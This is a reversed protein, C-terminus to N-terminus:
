GVHGTPVAVAQGDLVLHVDFEAFLLVVDRRGFLARGAADEGSFEDVDLPALEFSQQHQALPLVRVDGHVEVVLGVDGALESLEHGLARDIARVLGDPPAWVVLGREGLSFQFVGLVDRGADVHPERQLGTLAGVGRGLGLQFFDGGLVARDEHDDPRGRGPGDGAVEGDGHVRVEVVEGGGPVAANVDQGLAQGVRGEEGAAHFAHLDDAAELAAVEFVEDGAVREVVALRRDHEGVVHGQVGAGAADM